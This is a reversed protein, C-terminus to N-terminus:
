VMVLSSLPTFSPPVKDWYRKSGTWLTPRKEGGSLSLHGAFFDKKSNTQGLLEWNLSNLGEWSIESPLEVRYVPGGWCSIYLHGDHYVFAQQPTILDYVWPNPRLPMWNNGKDLSFFLSPYSEEPKRTSQDGAGETGAVVIQPNEPHIWLCNVNIEKLVQEWKRGGDETRWVGAGPKIKGEEDKEWGSHGWWGGGYIEDPNHPNVEITRVMIPPGLPQWDFQGKEWSGAKVIGGGGGILLEGNELLYGTQAFDLAFSDPFHITEVTFDGEKEKLVQLGRDAVMVARVGETTYQPINKDIMLIHRNVGVPNEESLVRWEGKLKGWLGHHWTGAIIMEGDSSVNAARIGDKEEGEKVKVPPGAEVWPWSNKEKDFNFENPVLPLHTKYRGEDARGRKPAVAALAMGVVAAGSFKLLERKTIKQQEKSM